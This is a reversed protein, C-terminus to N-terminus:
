DTIRNWYFYEWFFFLCFFFFASIIWHLHEHMVFIIFEESCFFFQMLDFNLVWYFFISCYAHLIYSCTNIYSNSKDNVYWRFFCIFWGFNILILKGFVLYQAVTFLLGWAEPFLYNTKYYQRLTIPFFLDSEM